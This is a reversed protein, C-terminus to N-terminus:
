NVFNTPVLLLSLARDAITDTELVGLFRNTAESTSETERYTRQHTVYETVANYADWRTIGHNETGNSFLNLLDGRLNSARTGEAPILAEFFHAAEIPNMPTEALKQFQARVADVSTRVEAMFTKWRTEYSVEMKSTHRVYLNAKIERSRAGNLCALREIFLRSRRPTGGDWGDSSYIHVGLIDGKKRENKPKITIDDMRIFAFARSRDAIFGAREVTGKIFSAFEYQTELFAKPCSASYDDGVIGLPQLNDSRYLMKRRPFKIATDTGSVSDSKVEWNLDANKLTDEFSTAIVGMSSIVSTNMTKM